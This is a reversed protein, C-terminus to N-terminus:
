EYDYYQGVEVNELVGLADDVLVAASFYVSLLYSAVAKRNVGMFRVSLGPAGAAEAANVTQRLGVVGQEKEGVRVLLIDTTGVAHEARSRGGVLLKDSPFIPVGRWSLFPSGFLHVIAPPVGRRTCERGFAAIARPHALFFAPKKWVLALLDDMDDPTPAGKRTRVRMSPAVNHLLGFDPNNILDWEQREKLAEITLRMQERVQDIPSSYLDAVRTHVRLVTQAVNLAYERPKVEYDVFTEPLDPEGDHGSSLAIAAEGHENVTARARERDAMTREFRARLEPAQALLGDFDARSLTLFLGPTLTEITANRPADRLLAGEGFYDGSGLVALRLKEGRAGRMSVEVEGRAILYLRDGAEGERVITVRREHRELSFRGAISKLPGEDLDRLLALARLQDPRIASPPDAADFAIRQDPPLVIRRRNVRYTGAEVAVWPLLSLLWRPTTEAMQAITKTTNALNRAASVSVSQRPEADSKPDM